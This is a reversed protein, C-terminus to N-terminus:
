LSSKVFLFKSISLSVTSKVFDSNLSNFINKSFGFLTIELSSIASSKSIFSFLTFTEMLLNFWLISKISDFLPIPYM